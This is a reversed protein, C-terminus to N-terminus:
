PKDRREAPRLARYNGKLRAGFLSSWRQILSEPNYQGLIQADTPSIQYGAFYGRPGCDSDPPVEAVVLINTGIWGMGAVNAGEEECGHYRGFHDRAAADVNALIAVEQIGVKYLETHFGNIESTADSQTIYFMSSDPSWALEAPYDSVYSESDTLTLVRGGIELYWHDNVVRVRKSRDPSYIKIDRTFGTKTAQSCLYTAKKSWIGPKGTAPCYNAFLLEPVLVILVLQLTTRGTRLM